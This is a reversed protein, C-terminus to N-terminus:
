KPKTAKRLVRPHMDFYDEAISVSQRRRVAEQM